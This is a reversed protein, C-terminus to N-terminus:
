QGNASVASNGDQGNADQQQNQAGGNMWDELGAPVSASKEERIRALEEDAQQEGCGDLRAIAARASSLGAVYRASEDVVAESYDQPLGDKWTITIDGPAVQHGELQMAQALMGRIAPDYYNRKRSIKALTRIFRLKLAKGSEIAGSKDLGFVAPSIESVKHLLDQLMEFERFAAELQGDWTIYRPLSKAVEPDSIEIVELDSARVNGRADLIGVPMAMKPEAHKDLYSAIKSIRANAEDQLSELDQFDSYGWYRSGIRWNPVHWLLSEAVGTAEEELPPTDYLTSLDVQRGVKAGELEFLEHRILGPQHLEVRLYEKEGVERVWALAQSLVHRVDDPDLEAFYHGASMEQVRACGDEDRWVKFAADGRASGSLASEWLATFLDNRRVIEDLALQEPSDPEGM